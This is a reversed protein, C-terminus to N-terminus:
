TSWRKLGLRRLWRAKKDSWENFPMETGTFMNIDVVSSTGMTLQSLNDDDRNSDEDMKKRREEELKKKREREKDEKTAPKSWGGFWSKDVVSGTCSKVHYAVLCKKGKADVEEKWEGEEVLGNTYTMVGKGRILGEVFQGAFCDGNKWRYMGEGHKLNLEFSGSYYDGTSSYAYTGYGSMLGEEYYGTYTCGDSFTEKGKGHLRGHKFHGEAVSSGDAKKLVGVGNPECEEDIRGKYKDGNSYTCEGEVPVGKVFTGKFVTGKSMLSIKGNGDACTLVGQGNELGNEFRGEYVSIIKEGEVSPSASTVRKLNGKEGHMQGQNNLPGTYVNGSLKFKCTGHVPIDKEFLGSEITNGTGDRYFNCKGSREGNLWRGQYCTSDPLVIIGKGHPNNDSNVDGKYVAFENLKTGPVKKKFTPKAYADHIAQHDTSNLCQPGCLFSLRPHAGFAECKSCTFTSFKRCGVASCIPPPM